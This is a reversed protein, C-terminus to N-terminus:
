HSLISFHFMVPRSISPFGPLLFFSQIQVVREDEEVVHSVCVIKTITKNDEHFLACQGNSINNGKSTRNSFIKTFIILNSMEVLRLAMINGVTDGYGAAFAMSASGSFGELCLTKNM